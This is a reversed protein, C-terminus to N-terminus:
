AAEPDMQRLEIFNDETDKCYAVWGVGPITVKPSVLSGGNAVLKAMDADMDGSEIGVMFGNLLQSDVKAPRKMLTGPLGPEDETGTEILYFEDTGGWEGGWKEIHWGFSKQYFDVARLVDDAQITFYVIRAM